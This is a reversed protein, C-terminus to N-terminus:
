AKETRLVAWAGRMTQRHENKNCRGADATSKKKTWLAQTSGSSTHQNVVSVAVGPEAWASRSSLTAQVQRVRAVRRKRAAGRVKGQEQRKMGGPGKESEGM